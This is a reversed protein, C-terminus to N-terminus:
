IIQSEILKSKLTGSLPRAKSFKIDVNKYCLEEFHVIM